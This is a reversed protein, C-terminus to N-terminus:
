KLFKLVSRLEDVFTDVEGQMDSFGTLELVWRRLCYSVM